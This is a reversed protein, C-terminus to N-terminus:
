KRDKLTLALARDKEKTKFTEIIEGIPNVHITGQDADLIIKTGAPINLLGV